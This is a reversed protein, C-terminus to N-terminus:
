RQLVCRCLSHGFGLVWRCCWRWCLGVLVRVVRRRSMLPSVGGLANHALRVEMGSQVGYFGLKKSDDALLCLQRLWWAFFPANRTVRIIRVFIPHM